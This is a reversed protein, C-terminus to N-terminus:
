SFTGDCLAKWTAFNMRQVVWKYEFKASADFPILGISEVIGITFSNGWPVVVHDTPKFDAVWAKPLKYTYDRDKVIVQVPVFETAM